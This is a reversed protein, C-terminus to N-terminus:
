TKNIVEGIYLNYYRCWRHLVCNGAIVNMLHFLKREPYFPLGIRVNYLQYSPDNSVYVIYLHEYAVSSLSWDIVLHWWKKRAATM